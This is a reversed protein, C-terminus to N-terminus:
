KGLFCNDSSTMTEIMLWMPQHGAGLAKLRLQTANGTLCDAPNHPETATLM